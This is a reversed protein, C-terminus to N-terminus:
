FCDVEVYGDGCGFVDDFGGFEFNIFMIFDEGFIVVFDCWVRVFRVEDSVVICDWEVIVFVFFFGGFCEVCNIVYM